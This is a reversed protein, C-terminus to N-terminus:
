GGGHCLVWWTAQTVGDSDCRRVHRSETVGTWEAHSARWSAEAGRGGEERKREKEEKV